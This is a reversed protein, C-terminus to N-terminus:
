DIVVELGTRLQLTGSIIVTDGAALGDLVQVRSETRIGTKIDVPQAKGGRYLFVKDKGMEPVIAESPVALAGDITEKTLDVSAYRGPMLRGDANAYLARVSLTHTEKDVASECAYVRAAFPNLFGDVTFQVPSGKRVEGSYREPVSFEVKLPTLRTLRSVVTAPTAYSGVSVQRLGIVGDFPARLETFEIQAKVMAIDARLTELETKVQELAEKSVADRQLLANQRYVRDEALPIQAELKRLQAQLQADNVKALLQGRRVHAGEEFYIEVIKGSAEFSLSVEEDPILLGTVRIHDTLTQRALVEVNIHLPGGGRKGGKGHADKGGMAPAEKGGDADSGASRHQYLYGAAGVAILLVAAWVLGKKNKM